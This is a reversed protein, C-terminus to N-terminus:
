VKGYISIELIKLLAVVALLWIGLLIMFERWFHLLIWWYSVPGIFVVLSLGVVCLTALLAFPDFKIEM